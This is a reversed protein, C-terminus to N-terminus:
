TIDRPAKCIFRFGSDVAAAYEEVDRWLPLRYFWSDVEVMRYHKAYEALYNVSRPQPYEYVLGVWSDYNWSCTGIHLAM